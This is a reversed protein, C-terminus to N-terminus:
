NMRSFQGNRRIEWKTATEFVKQKVCYHYVEDTLRDEPEVENRNIDSVMLSLELADIQRNDPLIIVDHVSSPLVYYDGGVFKGIQEMVGPYFFAAAGNAMTQNSVVTLPAQMEQEAKMEQVVRDIEEKELGAEELQERMLTEMSDSITAIKVPFLKPSNEMADRHLREKSIKFFELDRNTLVKSMVGKQDMSICVQYTIALNEVCTYPVGSLYLQNKERDFVRIFLKSKVHEYNAETMFLIASYAIKTIAEMVPKMNFGSERYLHYMQDLDIVLVSPCGKTRIFLGHCDTNLKKVCRVEVAADACEEPLYNKVTERVEKAFHEFEM